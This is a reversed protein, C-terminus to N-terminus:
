SVEKIINIKNIVVPTTIVGRRKMEALYLLSINERFKLNPLLQNEMFWNTYDIAMYIQLFLPVIKTIITIVIWLPHQSSANISLITLISAFSVTIALSILIKSGITKRIRKKDTKITSYEDQSVGEIDVGSYVFGPHIEKFYKVTNYVVYEEIYSNDLQMLLAEKKNLYKKEHENLIIHPQPLKNDVEVTVYNDFYNKFRRKIEFPTKNELVKLKHKINRIHQKIKRNKNFDNEMWPEFTDPDLYNENLQKITNEGEVHEIRADKSRIILYNFLAYFLMVASILSLLTDIYWWPSEYFFKTYVSVNLDDPPELTLIEEPTLDPYFEMYDKKYKEIKIQSSYTIDYLSNNEKLTKYEKYTMLIDEATYHAKGYILPLLGNILLILVFTLILFVLSKIRKNALVNAVKNLNNTTEVQKIDM